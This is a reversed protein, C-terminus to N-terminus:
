MNIIKRQAWHGLPLILILALLCGPSSDVSFLPVNLWVFFVFRKLPKYNVVSVVHVLRLSYVSEPQQAYDM